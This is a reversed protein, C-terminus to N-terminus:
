ALLEEFEGPDIFTGRPTDAIGKGNDPVFAAFQQHDDSWGFKSVKETGGVEPFGDANAKVGLGNVLNYLYKLMPKNALANDTGTSQVEDFAIAGDLDTCQASSNGQSLNDSGDEVNIAVGTKFYGGLSGMQLIPLNNCNHAQGDSQEMLWVAASNDLLTAGETEQISDLRGVLYAFQDAYWLDMKQLMAVVGTVCDGGMNGNGIRHSLGHNDSNPDVGEIFGLRSNGPMQLLMFANQNCLANMVVLDMVAPVFSSWGGVEGDEATIGLATAQETSCLTPRV